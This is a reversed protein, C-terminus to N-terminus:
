SNIKQKQQDAWLSIRGGLKALGPAHRLTWWELKHRTSLDPSPQKECQKLYAKAEAEQEEDLLPEAANLSLLSIVAQQARLRSYALPRALGYAECVREHEQWAQYLGFKRRVKSRTNAFSAHIRYCYFPKAVHWVKKCRCFIEANIYLDQMVINGPFRIGEFLKKDYLKNCMFNAHRDMLFEDRIQEQPMDNNWNQTQVDGEEEGHTFAQWDCVVIDAKQEQAATVMEEIANLEIWDDSDVFTVWPATANEVGTKRAGSLGTNKQHIVRIREDQKAYDDCLQPCNDPSEDDILLIEIDQWTQHLLSSVCKDLFKEANYVPVIIAVKSNM